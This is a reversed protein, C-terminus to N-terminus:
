VSMANDRMGLRIRLKIFKTEYLTPVLFMANKLKAGCRSPKCKQKIKVSKTQKCPSFM